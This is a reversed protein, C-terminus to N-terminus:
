SGFFLLKSATSCLKPGALSLTQLCLYPLNFAAPCRIIPNRLFVTLFVNSFNSFPEFLCGAFGFCVFSRFRSSGLFGTRNWLTLRIRSVLYIRAVAGLFNWLALSYGTIADSGLTRDITWIFERWSSSFNLCSGACKLLMWSYTNGRHKLSGARPHAPSNSCTQEFVVGNEPKRRLGDESTEARM